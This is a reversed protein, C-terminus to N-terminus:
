KQIFITTDKRQQIGLGTTLRIEDLVNALTQHADFRATVRINAARGRLEPSVIVPAGYLDHVASLVSDLPSQDFELSHSKWSLFNPDSQWHRTWRGATLLAREGAPLIITAATANRTRCKVMGVTVLVQCATDDQRIVFSTGMDEIVAQSTNVKFPRALDHRIEFFAEGKLEVVREGHGNSFAEPYTISAGKRLCITSSDPLTIIRNGDAAVITIKEAHQHNDFHWWAAGCLLLFAAAIWKLRIGPAKRGAPTMPIVRTRLAEDVRTWAAPTDFPRSNLASTSAEWIRLLSDYEERNAPDANLWQELDHQEEPSLEHQLQKLLLSEINQNSNEM